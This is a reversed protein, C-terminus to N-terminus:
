ASGMYELGDEEEELNAKVNIMLASDDMMQQPINKVQKMIIGSDAILMPYNMILLSEDTSNIGNYTSGSSPMGYNNYNNTTVAISKTTILPM